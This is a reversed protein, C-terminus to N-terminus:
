QKADGQEFRSKWAFYGALALVIYGAFLGATMDLDRSLYLYISILDIVVWYLWNELVKRAVMWTTFLAGITTLSDFFPLAADTYRSLFFGSVGALGLSTAIVVVHNRLPWKQIPLQNESGERGWSLWGVAAMAIYFLQLAAEMYLNAGFFIWAYLTASTAAALWCSRSERIALVVYALALAVAVGEIVNM